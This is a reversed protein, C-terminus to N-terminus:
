ARQAHTERNEATETHTQRNDAYASAYAYADANEYQMNIIMNTQMHLRMKTHLKM